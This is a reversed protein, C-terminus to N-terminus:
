LGRDLLPIAAHGRTANNRTAEPEPFKFDTVGSALM